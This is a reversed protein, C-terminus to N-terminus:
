IISYNIEIIIFPYIDLILQDYNSKIIFNQIRIFFQNLCIYVANQIEFYWDFYFVQSILIYVDKFYCLLIFITLHPVQINLTDTKSNSFALLIFFLNQDGIFIM